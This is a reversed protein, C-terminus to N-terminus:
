STIILNAHPLPSLIDCWLLYENMWANKWENIVLSFESAKQAQIKTEHKGDVGKRANIDVFV